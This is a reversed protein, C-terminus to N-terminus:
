ITLTHKIKILFNWVTKGLPTSNQMGALLTHSIEKQEVNKGANPTTQTKSNLWELLHITTKIKKIQM